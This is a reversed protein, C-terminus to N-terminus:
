VFTDTRGFDKVEQIVHIVVPRTATQDDALDAPRRFPVEAGFSEAIKAIEDDDTSVIVQDFLRKSPGGQDVM